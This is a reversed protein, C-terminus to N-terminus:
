CLTEWLSSRVFNPCVAKNQQVATNQQVVHARMCVCVCVCVGRATGDSISVIVDIDDQTEGSKAIVLFVVGEDEVASFSSNAFRIFIDVFM